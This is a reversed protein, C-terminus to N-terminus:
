AHADLLADVTYVDGSAFAEIIQPIWHQMHSWQKHANEFWSPDRLVDLDHLSRPDIKPYNAFPQKLNVFQFLDRHISPYLQKVAAKIKSDIFQRGYAYVAIGIERCLSLSREPLYSAMLVPQSDSQIATELLTAFYDGNTPYTYENRNRNEVQVRFGNGDRDTYWFRLDKRRRLGAVGEYGLAKKQTVGSIPLGESKLREFIARCTIEGADGVQKPPMLRKREHLVEICRNLKSRNAKGKHLIQTPFQTGIKVFTPSLQGNALLKNKEKTFQNATIGLHRMAHHQLIRLVEVQGPPWLHM